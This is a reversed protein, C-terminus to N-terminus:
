ATMVGIRTVNGGSLRITKSVNRVVGGGDVILKIEAVGGATATGGGVLARLKSLPLGVEVEGGDGMIVPRGGPSPPVIGGSALRPITPIHPINVGPIRDAIKAMRNLGNIAGNVIGIVSNIAGRAVGSARSFAGGIFGAIASFVSKVRNQVWVIASVFTNWKGKFYNVVAAVAKKAITWELQLGLIFLHVRDKVWNVASVLQNWRAKFWSVLASVGAKLVDWVKVFFDAFPGAFWHAIALAVSKIGNWLGIWFNRFGECHTWLYIFVAVLAVIAVIILGIPSAAFSSNLALWAAKVATTTAMWLKQAYVIAIIAGAFTGLGVVLPGLWAQNRQYFDGLKGLWGAFDTLIPVVKGGVVGVLGTQLKRKLTEFNTAANNYAAEGARETAGALKDMGDTATKPNLAFLAQGLDEAKTGFLGVATAERAVPDKMAKLRDLVLQLGDSAGKGGKAFVATMKDANLGLAKFASKSTDSGDRARIAFEKLADAVTDADRAGAKLGQSMLGLAQQGDIGIDRFKTSYENFTDLLDESKDIGNQAGYTIIDFAATADPALGNRIMQQVARASGAVDYGFVDSLTMAQETIKKLAETNSPDVIQAKAVTSIADGVETVNQGFADAYIEGALKGYRQADDSTGGFQAAIKGGVQQQDLAGVLAAGLAVAAAAGAALALAEIKGGFARFSSQAEEQGAEMESQDLRMRAVLEGVQLAM